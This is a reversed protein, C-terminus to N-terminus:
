KDGYDDMAYLQRETKYPEKYPLKYSPIIYKCAEKYLFNKLRRYIKAMLEDGNEEAKNSNEEARKTEELLVYYYKTDESTIKM